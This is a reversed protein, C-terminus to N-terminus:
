HRSRLQYFKRPITPSFVDTFLVSPGTAVQNTWLTWTFLNTSVLVGYAAGPEAFCSLTLYNAGPAVTVEPAIFVQLVAESSIAQGAPNSVSVTYAGADGPGAGPFALTANTAGALPQGDRFWQYVPPTPSDAIVSMSADQGEAVALSCPPVLILPEALRSAGLLELDFGVDSSTNTVQHIEVALANLGALLLAPNLNRTFWQNEDAGGVSNTAVTQWTITGSPLNDRWIEAGTSISSRM